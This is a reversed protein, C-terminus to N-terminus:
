RNANLHDLFPDLEVFRTAAGRLEVSAHSWFCVEVPFGRTRLKQVAPVHDTDGSVLTITDQPKMREFSDQIMEVAIQTDVKKERNRANREHVIVEFGRARAISWLSDSTPPTSGFLVARGIAGGGAFEMLRGFDVRWSSDCIRQECAAWIDPALGSRVAAAHMGEIWLNSNDVYLFNSM